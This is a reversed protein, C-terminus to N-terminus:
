PMAGDQEYATAAIFIKGSEIWMNNKKFLLVREHKEKKARQVAENHEYESQEYSEFM